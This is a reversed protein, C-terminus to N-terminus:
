DKNENLSAKEAVRRALNAREVVRSAQRELAELRNSMVDVDPIQLKEDLRDAQLHLEHALKQLTLIHIKLKNM